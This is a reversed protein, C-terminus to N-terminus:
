RCGQPPDDIRRGLADRNAAGTTAHECMLGRVISEAQDGCQAHIAARVDQYRMSFGLLQERSQVHSLQETMWRRWLQCAYVQTDTAPHMQEIRALEGDMAGIPGDIAHETDIDDFLDEIVRLLAAKTDHVWTTFAMFWAHPTPGAPTEDPAWTFDPLRAGYKVLDGGGTAVAIRLISQSAGRILQQVAGGAMGGLGVQLISLLIQQRLRIADTHAHLAGVHAEYAATYPQEAHGLRGEFAEFIRGIRALMQTLRRLVETRRMPDPTGAPRVTVTPQTPEVLRAGGAGRPRVVQAPPAHAPVRTQRGPVPAPAPAIVGSPPPQTRTRSLDSAEDHEHGM